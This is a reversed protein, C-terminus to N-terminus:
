EDKVSENLIGLQVYLGTNDNNPKGSVIWVANKGKMSDQMSLIIAQESDVSIKTTLSTYGLEKAKEESLCKLQLSRSTTKTQKDDLLSAKIFVGDGNGIAPPYVDIYKELSQLFKIDNLNSPYVRYFKGEKVDDVFCDGQLNSGIQKIISPNTEPNRKLLLQM